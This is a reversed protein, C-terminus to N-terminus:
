RLQHHAAPSRTGAPGDGWDRRAAEGGSRAPTDLRYVVQPRLPHAGPLAPHDVCAELAMGLRRMVAQSPENPAATMSWLRDLGLADFAVRVAITAAETAYGRHWAHRALRWGVEIGGAGPVGDPMPTLGTFGIFEGSAVVELAWLGFGQHEFGRELRDVLADSASRDLRSPFYRMVDPDANMAAFPDRDTDRWRRLLLRATRLRVLPATVALGPATIPCRSASRPM